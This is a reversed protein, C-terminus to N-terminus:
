HSSNLRTSKRDGEPKVRPHLADRGAVDVLQDLRQAHGANGFALNGTEALLDVLPHDGEQLAGQLAVPGVEPDVGGVELDALVAADDRDGHGDGHRDVAVAPALDQAHALDSSCVDSSWDSIRM